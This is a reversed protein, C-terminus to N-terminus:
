LSPMVSAIKCAGYWRSAYSGARTRALFSHALPISDWEPPRVGLSVFTQLRGWFDAVVSTGIRLVQASPLRWAELGAMVVRQRGLDMASLAALCVVDWVPQVLGAPPRVLWLDTRPFVSLAGEPLAGMALGMSERLALAMKCDWFWHRRDGDQMGVACAHCRAASGAALERAHQPFAWCANAAVRWLAEKHQNEWKLAWLRALTVAFAGAALPVEAALVGADLVFARHKDRLRALPLAQQLATGAKMTYNLVLLPPGPDRAWGLGRVVQQVAGATAREQAEKELPLTAARGRALRAARAAAAWGAPLLAVAEAFRDAAARVTPPGRLPSPLTLRRYRLVRRWVNNMYMDDFAEASRTGWRGPHGSSERYEGLGDHCDVLQGVRVVGPPAHLEAFVEEWTRGGVCLAPNAWLPVHAVWADPAPPAVLTVPPLGSMAQLLRVFPPCAATLPKGLVRSGARHVLLRLPTAHHPVAWSDGVHAIMANVATFCSCAWRAGEELPLCSTRLDFGAHGAQLLAAVLGVHLQWYSQANILAMLQSLWGRRTLLM